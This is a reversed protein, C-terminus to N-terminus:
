RAGSMSAALASTCLPEAARRDAAMIVENADLPKGVAKKAVDELARWITSRTDWDNLEVGDADLIVFASLLADHRRGWGTWGIRGEDQLVSSAGMDALLSTPVYKGNARTAPRGTSDRFFAYHAAM